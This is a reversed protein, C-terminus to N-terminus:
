FGLIVSTDNPLPNIASPNRYGKMQWTGQSKSAWIASSLLPKEAFLGTTSKGFLIGELDDSGYATHFDAVVAVVLPLNNSNVLAKYKRVKKEISEGLPNPNVWFGRGFGCFQLKSYGRDRCLIQFTFEELNLVAGVQPNDHVLWNRVKTAIAKNRRPDLKVQRQSFRIDLGIDQQIEQLRAQLDNLQRNQSSISEPVNATFVEVIFPASNDQSSVYWDPTQGAIEKEYETQLGLDGLLYGIALENYTERFNPEARLNSITKTRSNEPLKAVWKEIEDRMTQLSQETAVFYPYPRESRKRSSYRTAHSRDM